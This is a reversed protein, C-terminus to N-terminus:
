APCRARASPKGTDGSTAGVITVHEARRALVADFMHGLLQLALDKFALTPGHFLELVWLREDLQVLPAVAPHGFGSYATATLRRLEAAGFSNGAILAMVRAALEAYPLGALGRLAAADLKPLTEPVFLGGDEALGALLVDEFSRSAPAPGAARTSLYRM